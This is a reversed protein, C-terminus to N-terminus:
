GRPSIWQGLQSLGERSRPLSTSTCSTADNGSPGLPPLKSDSDEFVEQSIYDEDSVRHACPDFHRIRQVNSYASNFYRNEDISRSHRLMRQAYQRISKRDRKDVLTFTENQMVAM